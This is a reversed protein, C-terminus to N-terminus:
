TIFNKFQDLNLNEGKITTTTDIYENLNHVISNMAANSGQICQWSPPTASWLFTGDDEINKKMHRRDSAFDNLFEDSKIIKFYPM